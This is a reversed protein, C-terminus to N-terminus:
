RQRRALPPDEARREALRDGVAASTRADVHFAIVRAVDDIGVGAAKGLRDSEVCAFGPLHGETRGIEFM